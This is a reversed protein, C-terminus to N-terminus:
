TLAHPFAPDSAGVLSALNRDPFPTERSEEPSMDWFPVELLVQTSNVDVKLSIEGEGFAELRNFISLVTEYSCALLGRGLIDVKEVETQGFKM